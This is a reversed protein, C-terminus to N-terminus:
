IDYSAKITELATGRNESIKGLKKISSANAVAVKMIDAETYGGTIDKVQRTIHGDDILLGNLQGVAVRFKKDVIKNTKTGYKKATKYANRVYVIHKPEIIFHNNTDTADKAVVLDMNRVNLNILLYLVVYEKNKGEMFFQNMRKRFFSLAPLSKSQNTAKNLELTKMLSVGVSAKIKDNEYKMFDRYKSITSTMTQRKSGEDYTLLNELTTDQNANLGFSESYKTLNRIHNKITTTALKQEELYSRYADM